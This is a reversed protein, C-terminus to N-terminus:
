AQDKKLKEIIKTWKEIQRQAKEIDTLPRKSEERLKKAKEILSDYLKRDEEPLYDIM